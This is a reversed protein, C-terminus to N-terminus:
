VDSRVLRVLVEIMKEMGQVSAFEYVGHYNDCGTSLNPCPLGGEWTLRAGDTGGRVAYNWPDIGCARYADMAREIVDMHSELKERMNYYSDKLTLEFTGEGYIGNLYAVTSRLFDKRKEFGPRDHDRVILNVFAEEESARCCNVHFFGEYGETHAPTEAAPLLSIFHNAMLVANKMINKASGPHINRGHVTLAANAANFCEYEVEGVTSGDLTYAFDAGFGQFDFWDAGAGIEEDPTFAMAITGHPIEPHQTLYDALAVIEAGGAKDDAGLLTTGDTVILTQGIYPKLNPFQAETMVIQKEENLVIDGGQYELMRPKVNEGSADPSTDVHAILGITPASEQGPTAPLHGYVRGYHDLKADASGIEKLEEVLVKSLELQRATSPISESYGDSATSYSVYRLFRDIVNM